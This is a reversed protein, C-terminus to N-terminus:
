NLYKRELGVQQMCELESSVYFVYLLLFFFFFVSTLAYIQLQTTQIELFKM